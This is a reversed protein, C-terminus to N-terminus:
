KLLGIEFEFWRCSFWKLSKITKFHFLIKWALWFIFIHIKFQLSCKKNKNNSEWLIKQSNIANGEQHVMVLLKDLNKAARSKYLFQMRIQNFKNTLLTHTKPNETKLEVLNAQYSEIPEKPDQVKSVYGLVSCQQNVTAQVINLTESFKNLIQLLFTTKFNKKKRCKSKSVKFDDTVRDYRGIVSNSHSKSQIISNEVWVM